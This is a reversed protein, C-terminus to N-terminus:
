GKKTILNKCNSVFFEITYRFNVIRNADEAMIKDIGLLEAIVKNQM